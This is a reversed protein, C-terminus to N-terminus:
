PNAWNRAMRVEITLCAHLTRYSFMATGFVDRAKWPALVERPSHSSTHGKATEVRKSREGEVRALIGGSVMYLVLNM